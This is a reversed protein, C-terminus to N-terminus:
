SPCSQVLPICNRSYVFKKAAEIDNNCTELTKRYSQYHPMLAKRIFVLMRKKMKHTFVYEGHTPSYKDEDFYNKYNPWKLPGSFSNLNLDIISISNEIGTTLQEYFAKM